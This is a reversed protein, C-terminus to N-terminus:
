SLGICIFIFCYASYSQGFYLYNSSTQVARDDRHRPHALSVFSYISVLQLNDPVVLYEKAFSPDCHSESIIESSIQM